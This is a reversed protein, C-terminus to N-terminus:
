AKIGIRLLQGSLPSNLYLKCENVSFSKVVALKSIHLKATEQKLAKEKAKGEQPIHCHQLICLSDKLSAVVDLELQFKKGELEGQIPQIFEYEGPIEKRMVEFWCMIRRLIEELTQIKGFEPVRKLFDQVMGQLVTVNYSTRLSRFFHTLHKALDDDAGVVPADYQWTELVEYKVKWDAVDLFYEPHDTKGAPREFYSYSEQMQQTYAVPENDFEFRRMAIRLPQGNWTLASEDLVHEVGNLHEPLNMVRNLWKLPYKNAFPLILYDRARTLGVYLLRKEEAQARETEMRQTESGVLREALVTKQAQNGYPNVWFRLWRGGLPDDLNVPGPKRVIAAGWLEARLSQWLNNCVVIPYELGKSKHYTLVRVADPTDAMGQFDNNAAALENLWLLFGGLSAAANRRHCADEYNGALKVIEEVNSLRQEANGWQIITRRLDLEDLVVQIIESASLEGVVHRLRNIQSIVGVESGWGAESAGNNMALIYDLRNQLINELNHDGSLYWLEAKSLSDYKNLILRLCAILLRAEATDLLGARAVSAKLGVLHLAMAMQQCAVNSRCLVAVDGARAKRWNKEEKPLVLPPESLLQAIASAIALYMWDQRMRGAADANVLEWICIPEGVGPPEESAIRRATLAVQAAPLQGFASTFVANCFNVLGERSRWSYPQINDPHLGGQQDIIAQILEPEAGRFGYISQKPDGVWVSKQAIRSLKLFIDLQLPSTDQFEDVMLLDLEDNLVAQVDPRDLLHRVMVEMDTYDILGRQKKFDSYEALAAVALDFIEEIFIRLDNQFNPHLYHARSFVLLDEVLPLSKVGPSLKSIKAWDAWPLKEGRQLLNLMTQLEDVVTQTKKTGDGNAQLAQMTTAILEELRKDWAEASQGALHGDTEDPKLFEELEEISLRKSLALATADFDNARALETVDKLMKRWDASYHDSASLSLRTALDELKHVRDPTLVTALSHSFFVQQDEEALIDVNPSIGAELAFRSLLRVGLSHVTGILAHGLENAMNGLGEEILCKRVREHLEAAAKNTFTTAVVGSPRVQGSKLFELLETTLRHTKGSGAGASIVKVKM